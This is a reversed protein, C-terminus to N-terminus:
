DPLTAVWIDAETTHVSLIVSQNDPAVSLFQLIIIGDTGATPFVQPTQQAWPLASNFLFPPGPRQLSCVISRGDPSWNSMQIEPGTTSTLQKLESGDPRVQWLEYRGTRDTFFIIREGDPSWRPTRDKAPDNTLQRLGAGDRGIWRGDQKKKL